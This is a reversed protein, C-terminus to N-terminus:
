GEPVKEYVFIMGENNMSFTQGDITGVTVGAGIWNMTLTEGDQTFTAKVERIIEEGSLPKFVTLSDCNGGESFVLKGELVVMSVGGHALEAPMTKGDVEVLRFTGTIELGSPVEEPSCGFGFIGVALVMLLITPNTHRHNTKM